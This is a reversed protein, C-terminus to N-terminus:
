VGFVECVEHFRKEFWSRSRGMRLALLTCSTDPNAVLLDLIDSHDEFGELDSEHLLERAKKARGFREEFKDQVSPAMLGLGHERRLSRIGEVGRSEVWTPRYEDRERTTMGGWIGFREDNVMANDLCKRRIPCSKKCLGKMAERTYPDGEYEKNQDGKFALDPDSQGCAGMLRWASEHDGVLDPLTEVKNLNLFTTM